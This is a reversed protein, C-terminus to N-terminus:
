RANRPRARPAEKPSIKFLTWPNHPAPPATGGKGTKAKKDNVFDYGNLGMENCGQCLGELNVVGGFGCWRCSRIKWAPWTPEFRRPIWKAM